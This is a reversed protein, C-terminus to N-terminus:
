EIRDPFFSNLIFLSSFATYTKYMRTCVHILVCLYSYCPPSKFKTFLAQMLTATLCFRKDTSNSFFDKIRQVYRDQHSRGELQCETGSM